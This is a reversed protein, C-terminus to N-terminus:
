MKQLTQHLSKGEIDCRGAFINVTSAGYFYDDAQHNSVMVIVLFYRKRYSPSACLHVFPPPPLPDAYDM